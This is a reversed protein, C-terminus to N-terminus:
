PLTNSICMGRPSGDGMGDGMMDGGSTNSNDDGGLAVAGAVAPAQVPVLLRALAVVPAPSLHCRTLM